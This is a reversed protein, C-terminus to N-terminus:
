EDLWFAEGSEEYLYEEIDYREEQTFQEEGEMWYFKNSKTSEKHNLVFQKNNWECKLKRTVSVQIQVNDIIELFEFKSDEEM